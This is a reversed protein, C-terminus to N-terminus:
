RRARSAAGVATALGVLVVVSGLSFAGHAVFYVGGLCAGAGVYVLAIALFRRTGHPGSGDPRRERNHSEASRRDRGVRIAIARLVAVGGALAYFAAQSPPFGIISYALWYSLSVGAIWLGTWLLIQRLM